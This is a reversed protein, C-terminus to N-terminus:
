RVWHTQTQLELRNAQEELLLIRYLLMLEFDSVADEGINMQKLVPILEEKYDKPLM